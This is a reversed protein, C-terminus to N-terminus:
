LLISGNSIVSMYIMKTQDIETQDTQIINEVHKKEHEDAMTINSSCESGEENERNERNSTRKIWICRSEDKLDKIVRYMSIRFSDEQPSIEKDFENQIM